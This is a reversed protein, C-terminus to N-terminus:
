SVLKYSLVQMGKGKPLVEHRPELQLKAFDHWGESAPQTDSNVGLEGASQTAPEVRVVDGHRFRDRGPINLMM